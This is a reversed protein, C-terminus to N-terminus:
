RGHRVEEPTDCTPPAFRPGSQRRARPRRERIKTQGMGALRTRTHIAGGAGATRGGAPQNRGSATGGHIGEATGEGDAEEGEEGRGAASLEDFGADIGGGDGEAAGAGDVG